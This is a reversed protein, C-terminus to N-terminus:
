KHPLLKIACNKRIVEKATVRACLKNEYTRIKIPQQVIVMFIRCMKQMKMPFLYWNCQCLEDEYLDFQNTIIDGIECFLITAFCTWAINILTKVLEIPISNHDSKLTFKYSFNSYKSIAAVASM